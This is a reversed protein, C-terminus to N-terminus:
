LLIQLMWDNNVLHQPPFRYKPELLSLEPRYSSSSQNARNVVDETTAQPGGFKNMSDDIAENMWKPDWIVNQNNKMSSELAMMKRQILKAKEKFNQKVLIRLIVAVEQFTYKYIQSMLDHLAAMLGLDEHKSGEKTSYKKREQKRKNRSSKTRNTNRTKLSAPNSKTKSALSQGGVQSTVDSYMDVDEINIDTEEFNGEALKEKMVVVEELRKLHEDFVEQKKDLNALMEDAAEILAPKLNTEYLDPRQQIYILHLADHWLQGEILSLVAEEPDQLHEVLVQASEKFRRMEKLKDVLRRCLHSYENPIKIVSKALSLCFAWHGAQEWASIAEINLQGAEYILAADEFYKKTVLYDGYARFTSSGFIM